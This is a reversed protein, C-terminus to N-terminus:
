KDLYVPLKPRVDHMKLNEALEKTHILRNLCVDAVGFKNEIKKKKCVKM